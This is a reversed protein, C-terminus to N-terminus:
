RGTVGYTRAPRVLVATRREEAVVRDYTDWDDHTGGAARFVTRLLGAIDVAGHSPELPGVLEAAGELSQWEWASRATVTIRPDDRLRRRKFADARVVFGLVTAGDVPHALLGANVVSSSVTGDPRVVSAV